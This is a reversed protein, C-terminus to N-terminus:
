RGMSMSVPLADPFYGSDTFEVTCESVSGQGLWDQQGLDQICDWGDLSGYQCLVRAVPGDVATRTAGM